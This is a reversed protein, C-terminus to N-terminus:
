ARPYVKGIKAISEAIGVAKNTFEYTLYFSRFFPGGLFVNKGDGGGSIATYCRAQDAYAGELQYIYQQPPIEADTGAGFEFVLTPATIIAACSITYLNLTEDYVAGIAKNMNDAIGKPVILSASSSYIKGYADSQLQFQLTQNQYTIQNTNFRFGSLPINWFPSSLGSVPALPLKYLTGTYLSEDVGLYWVYILKKKITSIHYIFTLSVLSGHLPLYLQM